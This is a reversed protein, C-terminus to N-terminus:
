EKTHGKSRVTVPPVMDWARAAVARGALPAKMPFAVDPRIRAHAFRCRPLALGEELALADSLRGWAVGGVGIHRMKDRHTVRVKVGVRRERRALRRELASPRVQRAPALAPATDGRIIQPAASAERAARELTEACEALSIM